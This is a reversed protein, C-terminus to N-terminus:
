ATPLSPIPIGHIEFIRKLVEIRRELKVRKKADDWGVVLFPLTEKLKLARKWNRIREKNFQTGDDGTKERYYGAIAEHTWFQFPIPAFRDWLFCFWLFEINPRRGKNTLTCGLGQIFDQNKTAFEYDRFHHFYEDALAEKGVRKIEDFLHFQYYDEATFSTRGTQRLQFDAAYNAWASLGAERNLYWQLQSDRFASDVGDAQEQSTLLARTSREWVTRWDDVLWNALAETVEQFSAAYQPGKEIWIDELGASAGKIAKRNKKRKSPCNV